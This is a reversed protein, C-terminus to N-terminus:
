LHLTQVRTTIYLHGSSISLNILNPNKAGLKFWKLPNPQPKKKKKKQIQSKFEWATLM